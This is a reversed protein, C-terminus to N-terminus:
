AARCDNDKRLREGSERAARDISASLHVAMSCLSRVQSESLARAPSADGSLPSGFLSAAGGALGVAVLIAPFCNTSRSPTQM